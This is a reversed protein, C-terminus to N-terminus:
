ECAVLVVQTALQLQIQRVVVREGHDVLLLVNLLLLLAETQPADDVLDQALRLSLHHAFADSQRRLVNAELLVTTLLQSHDVLVLRPNLM